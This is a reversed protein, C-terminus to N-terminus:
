ARSRFDSRFRGFVIVAAVALSLVVAGYGLLLVVSLLEDGGALHWALIGGVFAILVLM